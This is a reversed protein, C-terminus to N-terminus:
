RRGDLLKNAVELYKNIIVQQDFEREMKQRGNLGMEVKQAFPLEVFKIMAHALSAVDRVKAIYGTVGDEVVDRCGVSDVTIIPKGMSSAELLSRPMGERYSPLVVCDCEAIVEAVNDVMGLYTIIGAKSWEHIQQQSIASPNAFFYNGIFVLQINDYQQQLQKFAAILEYIGKDGILRGSYLFKIIQRNRVKSLPYQELDVGSGPLIDVCQSDVIIRADLLFKYDDKNQFFIQNINKLALRYLISFLKTKITGRMFGYGLGTINAIQKIKTGRRVIASYLNPKVTFSCILDPNISHIIKRLGLLLLFEQLPNQGKWSCIDKHCCFGLIQLKTYYNGDDPILLSVSYGAERLAQMNHLQGYAHHATNDIFLIKKSLITIKCFFKYVM